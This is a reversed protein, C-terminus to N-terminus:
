NSEKNTKIDVHSTTAKASNLKLEGNGHYQPEKKLSIIKDNM